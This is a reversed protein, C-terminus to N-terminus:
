IDCYGAFVFEGFRKGVRNVRRTRAVRVLGLRQVAREITREDKTALKCHTVKCLRLFKVLAPTTLFCLPPWREGDVIIRECWGEVIFRQTQDVNHMWDPLSTRKKRSALARGLKILFRNLRSESRYPSDQRWLGSIYRLLGSAAFVTGAAEVQSLFLREADITIDGIAADGGPKPQLGLAQIMLRTMARSQSDSCVKPIEVRPLKSWPSLGGNVINKQVKM